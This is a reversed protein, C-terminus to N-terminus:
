EVKAGSEAVIKGWKAVEAKVYAQFDSPSSAVIESGDATLKAKAEPDALVERVADSLRKVIAPPTGIPAWLGFWVDVVFGPPMAEQITPVDPLQPNRRESTVALARLKGAKVQPRAASFGPFAFQAQGTLLSTM